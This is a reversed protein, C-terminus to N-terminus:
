HAEMTVHRRTVSMCAGSRSVPLGDALNNDLRIILWKGPQHGLAYGYLTQHYILKFGGDM